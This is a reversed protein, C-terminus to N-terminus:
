DSHFFLQTMYKGEKTEDEWIDEKDNDDEEEDDDEGDIDEDDNDDDGDVDVKNAFSSDHALMTFIMMM